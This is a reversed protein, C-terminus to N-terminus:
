GLLANHLVVGAAGMACANLGFQCQRVTTTHSDYRGQLRKFSELAADLFPAGLQCLPGGLVIVAPDLTNCLNQMLMGLYRGARGVSEVVRHDGLQLQRALEATSLIPDAVGTVDMSIARQSVFTEACGHRGCRCLPGDLQLMTHGVEAASGDHGLYLRDGLVIGGGLGIGISLYVLSDFRQDVGFVYESLAAANAENLITLPLDRVGAATLSALLPAHIELDHWTLNPVFGIRHGQADVTGPIGVGLGLPKRGQQLLRRHQEAVMDALARLSADLEGHRFPQLNSDLVQGHLNCSVVNLYDVGIEAGLLALRSPDLQLPTPRRGISGSVPAAQECLWGEDILEQVLLSVTSKTLGSRKALEARSLGAESKVLRILAISNIRKLLSQDGTIAAASKAHSSLLDSVLLPEM